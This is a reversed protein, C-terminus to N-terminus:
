KGEPLAVVPLPPQRRSKENWLRFGIDQLRDPTMVWSCGHRSVNWLHFGTDVPRERCGSERNINGQNDTTNLGISYIVIGEKTRRYRIPQNDMPDVPVADLLGHKVLVDLSAPWAKDKNKLRYRECALAALASRLMAQHRREQDNVMFLAPVLTKILPNKTNKCDAEWEALKPPREHIPLKAIDVCRNMHRLFEPYHKLLPSPFEDAVLMDVSEMVGGGVPRGVGLKTLRAPQVKGSRINDFLHHYGAREGRVACLLGNGQMAQALLAQMAQLSEDSAQGQALVRELTTVALCQDAIRILHGLLILEGDMTRGVNLIAQCSEVAQDYQKDQALLMADHQLWETIAYSDLHDRLPTDIFDDTYTIPFRGRPMDKLKRAQELPKAIKALQGRILESQQKNLQATTPLKKFIKEYNPAIDVFVGPAQRRVAIIHLASNGKDPITPRDAELDMLRWRPMDLIAEAEAEAWAQRTRLVTLGLLLLPVLIALAILLLAGRWWRRRRPKAPVPTSPAAPLTEMREIM